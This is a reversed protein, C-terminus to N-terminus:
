TQRQSGGAWWSPPDSAPFSDLSAEDVIDWDFIPNVDNNRALADDDRGTVDAARESPHTEPALVTAENDIQQQTRAFM